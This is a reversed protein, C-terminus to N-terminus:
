KPPAPNTKLPLPPKLEAMIEEPTFRVEQDGCQIILSYFKGKFHKPRTPLKITITTVSEFSAADSQSYIDPKAEQLPVLLSAIILQRRTMAM